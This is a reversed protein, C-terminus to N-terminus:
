RRPVNASSPSRTAPADAQEGRALEVSQIQIVFANELEGLGTTGLVVFHDPPATITTQLSSPSRVPTGPNPPLQAANVFVELSQGAAPPRERDSEPLEGRFSIQYTKDAVDVTSEISVRQGDLAAISRSVLQMNEIGLRSLEEVVPQIQQPMANETQLDPGSALWYFILRRHPGSEGGEGLMASRKVETDLAEVLAGVRHLTKETGQALISNTREDVALRLGEQTYVKSIVEALEWAKANQVRM